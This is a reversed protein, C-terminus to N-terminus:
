SLMKNYKLLIEGQERIQEQKLKETLVLEVSWGYKSTKKIFDPNYSNVHCWDASYWDHWVAARM